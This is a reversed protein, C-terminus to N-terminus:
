LARTIHGPGSPPSVAGPPEPAGTESGANSQGLLAEATHPAGSKTEADVALVWLILSSIILVVSYIYETTM